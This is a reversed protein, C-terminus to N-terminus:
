LEVPEIADELMKRYYSEIPELMNEREMIEKAADTKIFYLFQYRFRLDTTISIDPRHSCFELTRDLGVQGFSDLKDADRLIYASKHKMAM